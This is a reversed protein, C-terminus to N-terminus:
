LGHKSWLFLTAGNSRVSQWESPTLGAKVDTLIRTINAKTLYAAAMAHVKNACTSQTSGNKKMTLVTQSMSKYYPEFKSLLIANVKTLPAGAAAGALKVLVLRQATTLDTLTILTASSDKLSKNAYIDAALRDLMRSLQQDTFFTTLLSTTNDIATQKSTVTQSGQLSAAQASMSAHVAPSSSAANVPSTNAVFATVTLAAVLLSTRPVPTVTSM